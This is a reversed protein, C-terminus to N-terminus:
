PAIRANPGLPDRCQTCLFPSGLQKECEWSEASALSVADLRRGCMTRGEWGDVLWQLHLMGRRSMVVRHSYSQGPSTM